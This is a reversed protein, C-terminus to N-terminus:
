THIFHQSYEEKNYTPVIGISGSLFTKLVTSFCNML